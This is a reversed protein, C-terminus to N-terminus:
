PREGMPFYVLMGKSRPMFLPTLAKYIWRGLNGTIGNTCTKRAMVGLDGENFAETLDSYIVSRKEAAQPMRGNHHLVAAGGM